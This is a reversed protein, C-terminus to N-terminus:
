LQTTEIQKFTNELSYLVFHITSKHQDSNEGKEGISRRDVITVLESWQASVRHEGLPLSQGLVFVAVFDLCFQFCFICFIRPESSWSGSTHIVTMVVKILAGPWNTMARIAGTEFDLSELSEHSVFHVVGFAFAGSFLVFNMSGSHESRAETACFVSAMVFIVLALSSSAVTGVSVALGYGGVIQLGSEQDPFRFSFFFEAFIQRVALLKTYQIKIYVSRWADRLQKVLYWVEASSYEIAFFISSLWAKIVCNGLWASPQKDQLELLSYQAFNNKLHCKQLM